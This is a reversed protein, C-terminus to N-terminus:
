LNQSQIQVLVYPFTLPPRDKDQFGTHYRVTTGPMRQRVMDNFGKIVDPSMTTWNVPLELCFHHDNDGYTEGQAGSPDLFPAALTFMFFATLAPSKVQKNMIVGPSSM